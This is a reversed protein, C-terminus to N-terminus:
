HQRSAIRLGTTRRSAAAAVVSPLVGVSGHKDKHETKFSQEEGEEASILELKVYPDIISDLDDGEKKPLQYGSIVQM